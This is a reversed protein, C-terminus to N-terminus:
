PVLAWAQAAKEHHMYISADGLVRLLEKMVVRAFDDETMVLPRGGGRGSDGKAGREEGGGVGGGGGGSQRAPLPPQPNAMFGQNAGATALWRGQAGPQAAATSAGRSLPAQRQMRARECLQRFEFPDVAGLVGM